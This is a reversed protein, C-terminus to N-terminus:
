RLTSWAAAFPDRKLYRGRGPRGSWTNNNVIIDGRSIVTEANGQVTFGEYM